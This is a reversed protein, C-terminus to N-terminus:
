NRDMEKGDKVCVAILPTIRTDEPQEELKYDHLRVVRFYKGLNEVFEQATWEREHKDNKRLEANANPGSLYLAGGVAMSKYINEIAQEWYPIHELVELMVVAEFGNGPIYSTVDGYLWEVNGLPFMQRAFDIAGKDMEVALVRKAGSAYQLVGAGTGFGAELVYKGELLESLHKYMDFQPSLMYRLRRWLVGTADNPM